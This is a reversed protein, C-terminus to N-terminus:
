APAAPRGQREPGRDSLRAAPVAPTHNHRSRAQSGRRTIIADWAQGRVVTTDSEYHRPSRSLAAHTRLRPTIPISRYDECGASASLLTLRHARIRILPPNDDADVPRWM